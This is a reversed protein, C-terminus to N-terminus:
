RPRSAQAAGNSAGAQDNTPRKAATQQEMWERASPVDDLRVAGTPTVMIPVDFEPGWKERGDDVRAENVSKYPVGALAIDNIRAKNFNEKLNLSRFRFALNNDRGGYALDWVIERTFYDQVLSLLPRLGRDETNQQLVESTARNVDFTIGLDQPSLGFVAAIKRVLYELWRDYQMERNTDRFRLFSPSKTGGIIGLAGRGAIEASWYSKFREVDDPRAGEGINLLGDPAAEMVQKRNYESSHLEADVTMKLTELPALGVVTYTRPNAMIYVFDDNLFRAREQYDPYWFYRPEDPNGDWTASVKITAGDVQWLQVTRGNLARVKEISGADLTLIDEVVPEVFARFSDNAPNPMDFLNTIEQTLNQNTPRNTDYPVIDWEAASVQTKRLNIAARVWESHEAWNRLMKANTKGQRGKERMVLASTAEPLNKPSTDPRPRNAWQVLLGM